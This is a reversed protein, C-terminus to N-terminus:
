LFAGIYGSNNRKRFDLVGRKPANGRPAVGVYDYSDCTAEVFGGGFKSFDGLSKVLFYDNQWVVLDPQWNVGGITEAAARLLFRTIVLLTKNQSQFSDERNLANDGTPTVSGRLGRIRQHYEQQFGSSDTWSRRRVVDFTDAAVYSDLVVEFAADIGPTM